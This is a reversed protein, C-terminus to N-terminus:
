NAVNKIVFDTIAAAAIIVVLGVVAYMITNKAAQIGSSDGASTSYRIGGIVIVIVAVIGAVVYVTALLQAIEGGNIQKAGTDLHLDTAKIVISSPSPM